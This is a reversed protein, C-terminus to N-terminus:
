GDLPLIEGTVIVRVRVGEIVGPLSRATADDFAYVVIIDEGEVGRGIGFGAIGPETLWRQGARALVDHANSPGSAPPAGQTPSAEPPPPPPPPDSGNNV